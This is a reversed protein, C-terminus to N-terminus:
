TAWVFGDSLEILNRELLSDVSRTFAKLKGAQSTEKKTIRAEYCATRLDGLPVVQLDDDFSLSTNANKVRDPPLKGHTEILKKLTELVVTVAWTQMM